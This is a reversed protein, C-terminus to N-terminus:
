QVYTTSLPHPPSVYHIDVYMICLSTSLCRGVNKKTPLVVMFFYEPMIDGYEEFGVQADITPVQYPAMVMVVVVQSDTVWDENKASPHARHSAVTAAWSYVVMYYFVVLLVYREMDDLM